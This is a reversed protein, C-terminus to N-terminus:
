MRDLATSHPVQERFTAAEEASITGNQKQMHDFTAVMEQASDALKIESM